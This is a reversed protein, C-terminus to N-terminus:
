ITHEFTFEGSWHSFNGKEDFCAEQEQRSLVLDSHDAAEDYLARSIYFTDMKSTSHIWVIRLGPPNKIGTISEIAYQFATKDSPMVPPIMGGKPDHSTIVNIYTATFDIEDFLRKTIVDANGIGSANHKTKKTLDRVAIRDIYPATSGLVASRGTVNPDMGAGSIDKGVEDVFLIDVKEFPLRPTYSRAIDLLQPERTAIQDGPVAEVRAVKHMSDEIIAFGFPVSRHRLIYSGIEFVTSSMLSWGRQHCLSAGHQKGFGITLMKMLGSEVKGRFDPHPKIRGVPVIHDAGAANEELYVPLKHEQTKGLFVVEMSAYLPCGMAEETIGYSNMLAYQGQATSGGHSGMAAIICPKAGHKLLLQVLTSLITDQQTIERSSASLAVTQGPQIHRLVGSELTTKRVEAVTDFDPEALKLRYKVKKFPPLQVHSLAQMIQDFSNEYVYPEKGEKEEM